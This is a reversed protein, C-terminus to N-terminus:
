TITLTRKEVNLNVKPIWRNDDDFGFIEGHVDGVDVSLAEDGDHEVAVEVGVHEFECLLGESGVNRQRFVSMKSELAVLLEVVVLEVNGM